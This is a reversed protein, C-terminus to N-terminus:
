DLRDALWHWMLFGAIAGPRPPRIQPDKGAFVEALRERSVWLAEAIEAPDLTFEKTEAQGICGFMLSTPFPWPQSALYDVPGIRVGTEEMVERRVAAELSEGPEVFGALLSFMGEPWAPSRGLLLSNGKTVLMIVVPDTRPFHAGGCAPCRREWGAAVMASEAGCRACFRHSRHWEFLARSTAALEAGRATLGPMLRRLETFAGEPLDPHRHESADGFGGEPAEAGPWDAIDVAFLPVGDEGRGLFVRPGEELVVRPPLLCPEGDAALPRGRWLPLVRGEAWLAAQRAEDSRLMAARDLGSTSFTVTEARRM